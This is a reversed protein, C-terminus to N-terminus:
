GVLFDESHRDLTRAATHVFGLREIKHAVGDKRQQQDRRRDHENAKHDAKDDCQELSQGRDLLHRQGEDRLNQEDEEREDHKQGEHELGHPDEHFPHGVLDDPQEGGDGEVGAEIECRYLGFVVGLVFM